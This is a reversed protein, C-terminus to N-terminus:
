QEDEHEKLKKRIIQNLEGGEGNESSTRQDEIKNVKGKLDEVDEKVAKVESEVVEVRREITDLRGQQISLGTMFDVTSCNCTACYWHLVLKRGQQPKNMELMLKYQQKPVEECKAHFWQRCIECELAMDGGKVLKRCRGCPSPESAASTSSKSDTVQNEASKSESVTTVFSQTSPQRSVSLKEEESAPIASWDSPIADHTSGEARMVVPNEKRPSRTITRIASAAAKKMSSM